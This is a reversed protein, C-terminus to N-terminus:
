GDSDDEEQKKWIYSQFGTFVNGTVCSTRGDESEDIMRDEAFCTDTQDDFACDTCELHRVPVRTYVNGMWRFTTLSM